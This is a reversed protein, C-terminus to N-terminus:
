APLPRPPKATDLKEEALARVDDAIESLLYWEPAAGGCWSFECSTAGSHITLRYATEHLGLASHAALAVSVARVKTLLEQARATEVSCTTTGEWEKAPDQEMWDMAQYRRASVSPEKSGSAHPITLRALVGHEDPREWPPTVRLEIITSAMTAIRVRLTAASAVPADVTVPENPPSTLM